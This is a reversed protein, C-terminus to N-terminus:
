QRTTDASYGRLTPIWCRVQERYRNYDEGFRAELDSEEWARMGKDWIVMGALAYLVTFPSHLLIGVMIAQMPGAIAMPNRVYRYPGVVVLRRTSDTPLPTGEGWVSMSYCSALGLLSFLFLFLTALIRVIPANSLTAHLGMAEELRKLLLPFLVLFLSWFVSTQLLSKTLNWRWSARKAVRGLRYKPHANETM